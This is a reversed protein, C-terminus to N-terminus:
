ELCIEKIEGVNRLLNQKMEKDFKQLFNNLIPDKKNPVFKLSKLGAYLEVEEDTLFYFVKIAESKGVVFDGVLKQLFDVCEDDLTWFLLKLGDSSFEVPFPTMKKFLYLVIENDISIKMGPKLKNMRFAKKVRKEFLNIFCPRCVGNKLKFESRIDCNCHM